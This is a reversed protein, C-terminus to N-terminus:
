KYSVNRYITYKKEVSKVEGKRKDYWTRETNWNTICGDYFCLNYDGDINEIMATQGLLRKTCKPENAVQYNSKQLKPMCGGKCANLLEDKCSLPGTILKSDDSKLSRILIGGFRNKSYNSDFCIDVGSLHYFLDGAEYGNRAYTVINWNENFDKKDFYYFEIEAFTYYKKEIKGCEICFDSLLQKAISFCKNQFENVNGSTLGDFPNKLFNFDIREEM